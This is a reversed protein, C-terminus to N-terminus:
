YSPSERVAPLPLKAIDIFDLCRDDFQRHKQVDCWSFAEDEIGHLDKVSPSAPKFEGREM